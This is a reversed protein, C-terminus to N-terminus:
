IILMADGYSYFRYQWKIAEQYAKHILRRGAFACVLLFLTSRPLHFNTLLHNVIKFKFGPYIFLDTRGKLAGLSNHDNSANAASELVRTTTTGVAFVKHAQQKTKNVLDAVEAPLNFEEEEIKHRTIEDEKVPRFSGWGVHLTLFGLDVGKDKIRDLINKTFHLGATPAAVAGEKSAYVTQYQERDSDEAKRRIYPPLPMVGFRNILGSIDKINEFRILNLDREKRVLQATISGANLAVKEGLKLRSPRLLCRFTDDTEKGLLFIEVKGGSSRKAFMRAPYVKTDNLIICDGKSLYDLIDSFHRHHIKGTDKEIVMLKSADRQKLPFQAIFDKPLQYDFDALKM